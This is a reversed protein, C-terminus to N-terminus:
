FCSLNWAMPLSDGGARYQLLFHQHCTAACVQVLAAQQFASFQSELLPDHFEFWLEETATGPMHMPQLCPKQTPTIQCIGQHMIHQHHAHM